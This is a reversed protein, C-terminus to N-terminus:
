DWRIYFGSRSVGDVECGPFRSALVDLFLRTIEFPAVEIYLTKGREAGRRVDAEITDIYQEYRIVAARQLEAYNTM